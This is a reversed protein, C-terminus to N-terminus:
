AKCANLWPSIGGTSRVVPIYDARGSRTLRGFRVDPGASGVGSAIQGQPSPIFNAPNIGVENIWLDTAGDSTHVRLYDARGDGNIDALRTEDRSGGVGTAIFNGGNYPIFNAPNQGFVSLYVILEGKEGIWCYDAKGDGNIDAFRIGKGDRGIGSAIPGNVPLWVWGLNPDPNRGGNLYATVAGSTQDVILYDARGDGNIDALHVQDRTAGVGGNIIGDKLAPNWVWGNSGDTRPGGNLYVKLIGAQDIFVYDDVGDGDIDAFVVGDGTGGVGSAIQAGGQAPFWSVGNPCEQRGANDPAVPAQIWGNAAAKQIASFWIDGMKQYGSNRPHLGDILDAATVSGFDVAAINKHTKAINAVLGPIQANYTQVRDDTPADGAHIIQAVLITADPCVSIVKQILSNLRDPASAYPDTPKDTHLDNTGAHVLVINPRDHLSNSAYGEIQSITAGPHGENNNNAM